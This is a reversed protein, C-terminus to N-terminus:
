FWAWKYFMQFPYCSPLVVKIGHIFCHLFVILSPLLKFVLVAKHSTTLDKTSLPIPSHPSQFLFAAFNWHSYLGITIFWKPL